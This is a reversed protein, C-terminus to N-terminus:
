SWEPYWYATSLFPTKNVRDRLRQSASCERVVNSENALLSLIKAYSTKKDSKDDESGCFYDAVIMAIVAFLDLQPSPVRLYPTGAERIISEDIEIKEVPIHRYLSIRQRFEQMDIGGSGRQVHFVPHFARDPEEVDFHACDIVRLSCSDAKLEAYELFAVSANAKIMCPHTESGKLRFGGDVAITLQHSSGHKNSSGKQPADHICVPHALRVTISKDDEPKSTFATPFDIRAGKGKVITELEAQWKLLYRGLLGVHRM